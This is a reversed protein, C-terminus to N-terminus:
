AYAVRVTPKRARRLGYGVAGFGFLMMAWTAPEPVASVSISTLAYPTPAGDGEPDLVSNTIHDTGDPYATFNYTIGAMSSFSIGGITFHSPGAAFFQQDAGAFSSLGTVTSSNVLGSISTVTTGTVDLNVSGTDGGSSTFTVLYTAASATTSVAMALGAAAIAIMKLSQM